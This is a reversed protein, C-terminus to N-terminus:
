LSGFRVKGTKHPTASSRSSSGKEKEEMNLTYARKCGVVSDTMGPFKVDATVSPAEAALVGAAQVATCFITEPPGVREATVSLRKGTSGATQPIPTM